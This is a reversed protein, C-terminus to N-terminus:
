PFLPRGVPPPPPADHTFVLAPTAHHPKLRKPPPLVWVPPRAPSANKREQTGLPPADGEKSGAGAPPLAEADGGKALALAGEEGKLLPLAEADGAPLKPPAKVSVGPGLLLPAPAEAEALAVPLPLPDAVALAVTLLVILPEALAVPAVVAAPVAEPVSDLMPVLALEALAEAVATPAAAPLAVPLPDLVPEALAREALGVGDSVAPAEAM